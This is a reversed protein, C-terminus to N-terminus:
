KSVESKAIGVWDIIWEGDSVAYLKLPHVGKELYVETKIRTGVLTSYVDTAPLVFVGQKGGIEFMRRPSAKSVTSASMVIDYYGAEKVEFNFTVNEFTSNLGQLTNRGISSWNKFNIEGSVADYDDAYKIVTAKEKLADPNEITELSVNESSVSELKLYPNEGKTMICITPSLLFLSNKRTDKISVDSYEVMKYLGTTEPYYDYLLEGKKNYVGKFPIEKKVGDTELVFIGEGESGAENVDADYLTYSGPYLSINLADEQKEWYIGHTTKKEPINRMRDEYHQKLGSIGKHYVQVDADSILSSLSISDATVTASIKVDSSILLKDDVYAKTGETLMFGEKDYVFATGEFSFGDRTHIEGDTLNIYAVVGDEFELKMYDGYNKSSVYSPKEEERRVSLTSIMKTSKVPATSFSIRKDTSGSAMAPAAVEALDPGAFIDIYNTEIKEPYHMCVEMAAAGKSVTAGKKNEFVKIEGSTNIWYEFNSEKSKTELDDIVIFVDPKIYIIEREAKTLKGGYAKTADGASYAFKDSGVFGTLMGKSADSFPTQGMGEDYTIANHAYTKRNYELDFTSKYYDYYGSDIALPEGYAQIVFSNQDPHSHNYSGYFSSKFTMGVKYDDTVDSYMGTWGVDYFMKDNAKKVPITSAADNLNFATTLFEKSV